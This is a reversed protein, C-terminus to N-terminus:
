AKNFLSIILVQIIGIFFGLIGGLIEIHKLEKRVVNFIIRELQILEFNAVKDEVIKSIQIKERSNNILKDVLHDFFKDIERFIAERLFDILIFRFNVPLFNPYKEKVRKEVIVALSNKLEGKLNISKLKDLLDEASILENEVVQGITVALEQHRRPIVGQITYGLLPIKVPYLPRFLMKVALYNTFWGIVAGVLPPILLIPWGM